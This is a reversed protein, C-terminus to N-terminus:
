RRCHAHGLCPALAAPGAWGACCGVRLLACRFNLQLCRVTCPAFRAQFEQFIRPETGLFSYISQDDQPCTSCGRLPHLQIGKGHMMALLTMSGVLQWLAHQWPPM